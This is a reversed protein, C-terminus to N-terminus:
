NNGEERWAADLLVFYVLLVEGPAPLRYQSLNQFNLLFGSTKFFNKQFTKFIERKKRILPCQMGFFAVKDM